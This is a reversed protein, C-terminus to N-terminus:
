RPLENSGAYGWAVADSQVLGLPDLPQGDAVEGAEVCTRDRHRDVRSHLSRFDLVHEFM